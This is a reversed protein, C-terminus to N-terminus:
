AFLEDLQRKQQKIIEFDSFVKNNLYTQHKESKTHRSLNCRTTKGGCDCHCVTSARKRIEKKHEQNYKKNYTKNRKQLEEKNDLLYEARTRGAIVKNIANNYTKCVIGERTELEQRSNCAYDEVLEVYCDDFKIIEYSTVYHYKGAKWRKYNAKHMSLRNSLKKTTSGIYADNTQYSKIVYIKGNEYGM